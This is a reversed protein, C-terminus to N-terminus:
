QAVQARWDGAHDFAIRREENPPYRVEIWAIVAGSAFGELTFEYAHDAYRAPRHVRGLPDRILVPMGFAYDRWPASLEFEIRVRGDEVRASLPRGSWQAVPTAGLEAKIDEGYNAWVPRARAVLTALEDQTPADNPPTCAAPFWPLASLLLAAAGRFRM